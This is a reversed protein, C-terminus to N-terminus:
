DRREELSRPRFSSSCPTCFIMNSFMSAARCLPSNTEPIVDNYTFMVDNCMVCSCYSQTSQMMVFSTSVGGEGGEREMWGVM